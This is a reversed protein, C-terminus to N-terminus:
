ADISEHCDSGEDAPEEPAPWCCKGCPWSGDHCDSCSMCADVLSTTSAEAAATFCCGDLAECGRRKAEVSFGGEKFGLLEFNSECFFDHHHKSYEIGQCASIPKQIQLYKTVDVTNGYSNLGVINGVFGQQIIIGQDLLSNSLQGTMMISWLKNAVVYMHDINMVIIKLLAPAPFILAVRREQSALQSEELSRRSSQGVDSNEFTVAVFQLSEYEILEAVTAQIKSAATVEDSNSSINLVVIRALLQPPPLPPAPDLPPPPPPPAPTTTPPMTTPVVLKRGFCPLARSCNTADCALSVSAPEANCLTSTLHECYDCCLPLRAVGTDMQTPGNNDMYGVVDPAIGSCEDDTDCMRFDVESSDTTPFGPVFSWQLDGLWGASCCAPGNLITEFSERPIGDARACFTTFNDRCNSRQGTILTKGIVAEFDKQISWNSDPFGQIANLLPVFTRNVFKSAATTNRACIKAVTMEGSNAFKCFQSGELSVVQHFCRFVPYITMPANAMYKQSPCRDLATRGSPDFGAPCTKLLAKVTDNNYSVVIEPAMQGNSIFPNFIEISFIVMSSKDAVCEEMRGTPTRCPSIDQSTQMLLRRETGFDCPCESTKGPCWFGMGAREVPDHGPCVAGHFVERGPYNSSGDHLSIIGIDGRIVAGLFGSITISSDSPILFNSQLTITIINRVSPSSHTQGGDARCTCCVILRCFALLM